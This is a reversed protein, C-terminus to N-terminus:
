KGTDGSKAIVFYVSALIVVAGIIFFLVTWASRTFLDKWDQASYQWISKDSKQAAAKEAATQDTWDGSAGGSQGTTPDPEKGSIFANSADDWSNTGAFISKMYRAAIDLSQGVDWADISKAEPDVNLGAIGKGADSVYLPDFNTKSRIANRFIDTPIGYKAAYSDAISGYAAENMATQYGQPM